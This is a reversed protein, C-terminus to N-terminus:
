GGFRPSYGSKNGKEKRYVKNKYDKLRRDMEDIAADIATFPTSGREQAVLTKGKMDLIIQAVVRDDLSATGEQTFEVGATTDFPLHREIRRMKKSVYENLQPTLLVNRAQITYQLGM